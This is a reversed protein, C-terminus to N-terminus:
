PGAKAIVAGAQRRVCGIDATMQMSRTSLQGAPPLDRSITAREQERVGRETYTEQVLICLHLQLTQLDM